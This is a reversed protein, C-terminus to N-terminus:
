IPEVVFWFGKRYMCVNIGKRVGVEQGTLSWGVAAGMNDELQELTRVGIVVSPIYSKQLTWRLAVQAM